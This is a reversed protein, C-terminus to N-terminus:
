EDFLPFYEGNFQAAAIAAKAALREMVIRSRKKLWFAPAAAGWLERRTSLPLRNSFADLRAYARERGRGVLARRKMDLIARSADCDYLVYVAFSNCDGSDLMVLTQGEGPEYITNANGNAVTGYGRKLINTHPEVGWDGEMVRFGGVKKFGPVSGGRIISRKM